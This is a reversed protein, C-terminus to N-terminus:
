FKSELTREDMGQLFYSVKGEVKEVGAMLFFTLVLALNNSFVRDKDHDMGIILVFNQSFPFLQKIAKSVFSVIYPVGTGSTIRGM